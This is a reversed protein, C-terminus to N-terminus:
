TRTGPTLSQAYVKSAGGLNSNTSPKHVSALMVARLEAQWYANAPISRESLFRFNSLRQINGAAPQQDRALFRVRRAYRQPDRKRVITGTIALRLYQRFYHAHPGRAIAVSALSRTGTRAFSRHTQVKRQWKTRFAIPITM